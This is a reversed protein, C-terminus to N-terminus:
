INEQEFEMFAPTQDVRNVTSNWTNAYHRADISVETTIIQTFLYILPHIFSNILSSVLLYKWNLSGIVEKIEINDLYINKYYWTKM